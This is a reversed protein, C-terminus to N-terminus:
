AASVSISLQTDVVPSVLYEQIDEATEPFRVAEVHWSKDVAVAVPFGRVRFKTTIHSDDASLVIASNPLDSLYRRSSLLTGHWVVALRQLSEDSMGRLGAAIAKCTFCESSLFLFVLRNDLVESNNLQRGTRIDTAEFTPVATGVSIANAGSFGSEALGILRATDKALVLIAFGQAVVIFTLFVITVVMYTDGIVNEM